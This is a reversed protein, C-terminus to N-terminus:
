KNEKRIGNLSFVLSVAAKTPGFYHSYNRGQYILTGEIPIAYRYDIYMYGIGIDANLYLRDNLKWRYGGSLGASTFEGKRNKLGGNMFEFEGTQIYVGAQPGCHEYKPKFCYNLSLEGDIWRYFKNNSKKSWWACAGNLSLYYHDNLGYEIGGNHALATWYLLNTTIRWRSQRQHVQEQVKKMEATPTPYAPLTLTVKVLPEPSDKFYFRCIAYRLETLYYSAIYKYPTGNHITKLRNQKQVSSLKQSELISLVEERFPLQTDALSQQLVHEWLIPTYYINIPVNEYDPYRNHLFHIVSNSRQVSLRENNVLIGDPSSSATVIISDPVTHQRSLIHLTSDLSNLQSLNGERSLDITYENKNFRIIFHSKGKEQASLAFSILLFLLSWYSSIRSIVM